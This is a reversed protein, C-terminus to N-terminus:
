LTGNRQAERVMLLAERIARDSWKNHRVATHKRIVYFVWMGFFAESLLCYGDVGGKAKLAIGMIGTTSGVGGKRERNSISMAGGSVEATYTQNGTAVVAKM